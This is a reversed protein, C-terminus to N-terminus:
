FSWGATLSLNPVVRRDFSRAADRILFADDEPLEGYLRRRINQTNLWGDLRLVGRDSMNWRVSCTPGTQIVWERGARTVTRASNHDTAYNVTMAREYDSRAYIRFGVESAITGTTRIRLWGSYTRLTDFPIEAFREWILRGLRLDSHAAMAAVALGPALQHDVSLDYRMERASQDNPRRGPLVFDAVTYTARLETALDIRTGPAAQWRVIPRVRLSRQRNNEASRLANLYVTHHYSGFANVMVEVSSQPRLILSALATHYAEDRDDPNTVPTDHRLISATGDLTLVVASSFAARLRSRLLVTGRDFDAQQLLEAAQAAPIPPLSARNALERREAEGGARITVSAQFRDTDMQVGGEARLLRRNQDSDYYLAESPARHTRISRQTVGVDTRGILSFPGFLLSEVALGVMLTDSTTAEITEARRDGMRDRNLFSVAQYADRRLSGYSVSAVLRTAEFTREAGGQVRIVRGHRPTIAQMAFEGEASLLYDDLPPPAMGFRLSAAPGVDSRLPFLGDLGPIGPRQDWAAGAGPEVMLWDTQFRVGFTAEQNLAYAQRTGSGQEFWLGRGRTVLSLGQRLPRTGEWTIRNEDRLSLRNGTLLYADSTYRNAMRIDWASVPQELNIEASWRYRNLDRDFGSSIQRLPQAEAALPAILLVVIVPLCRWM